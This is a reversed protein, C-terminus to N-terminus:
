QQSKLWAIYDEITQELTIEPKWGTAKHLRSFDGYLDPTDKGKPRIKSPDTTITIDPLGLIRREIEVIEEGSHSKGSCVNYTDHSLHDAEALLRYARVIDQVDTFDRKNKLNGMTIAGNFDPSILQATLQPLLFDGQQGPGIHNFPRVAICDVGRGRLNKAVEEMALKSKVYPSNGENVKSEETLPLPQDSDYVAGTSIAIIRKLVTGRKVAENGLNELVGTNVRMYLEPDTFSPGVAALGALNIVVNIDELPLHRVAEEDTLDCTLYNAPQNEFDEHVIGVVEHGASLLNRELHQGVFGNIGTVMVKSM